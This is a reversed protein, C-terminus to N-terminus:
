LEADAEYGVIKFIKPRDGSGIDDYNAARYGHIDIRDAPYTIDKIEGSTNAYVATITPTHRKIVKFTM